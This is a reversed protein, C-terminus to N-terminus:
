GALGCPSAFAVWVSLAGTAERIVDHSSIINSVAGRKLHEVLSFASVFFPTFM